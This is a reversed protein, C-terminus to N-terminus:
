FQHSIKSYITFSGDWKENRGTEKAKDMHDNWSEAFLDLLNGGFMDSLLTDINGYNKTRKIKGWSVRGRKRRNTAPSDCGGLKTSLCCGTGWLNPPKKDILNIERKEQKGKETERKWKLNNTQQVFLCVWNPFNQKGKKTKKIGWSWGQRTQNKKNTPNPWDSKDLCEGTTRQTWRRQFGKQTHPPLPTVTNKNPTTSSATNDKLIYNPSFICSHFLTFSPCM